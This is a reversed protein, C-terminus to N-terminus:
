EDDVGTKYIQQPRTIGTSTRCFSVETNESLFTKSNESFNGSSFGYNIYIAEQKDWPFSKFESICLAFM